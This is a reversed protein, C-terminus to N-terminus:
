SVFRLPALVEAKSNKLVAAVRLLFVEEQQQTLTLMYSQKAPRQHKAFYCCWSFPSPVKTSRLSVDNSAWLFSTSFDRHSYTPILAQPVQAETVFTWSHSRLGSSVGVRDERRDGDRM